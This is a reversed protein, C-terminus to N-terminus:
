AMPARPQLPTWSFFSSGTVLSSSRTRFCTRFSETDCVDAKLRSRPFVVQRRLEGANCQVKWGDARSAYSFVIDLIDSTIQEDGDAGSASSMRMKRTWCSKAVETLFVPLDVVDNTPLPLTVGLEVDSTLKAFDLTDQLRAYTQASVWSRLLRVDLISRLSDLCVNAITLLPAFKRAEQESAEERILDLQGGTRHFLDSKAVRQEPM